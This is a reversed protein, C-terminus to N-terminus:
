HGSRNGHLPDRHDPRLRSVRKPNLCYWDGNIHHVRAPQSKPHEIIPRPAMNFYLGWGHDMLASSGSNTLLFRAEFGNPVNTFNTVLEWEVGIPSDTVTDSAHVRQDVICFHLCFAFFVTVATAFRIM